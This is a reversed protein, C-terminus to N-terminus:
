EFGGLRKPPYTGVLPYKKARAAQKKEQKLQYAKGREVSRQFKDSRLYAERKAQKRVARKYVRIATRLVARENNLSWGRPDVSGISEPGSFDWDDVIGVTVAGWPWWPFWDGHYASAPEVAWVKNRFGAFGDYISLDPLGTTPDIKVDNTTM